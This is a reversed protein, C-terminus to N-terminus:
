VDSWFNKWREFPTYDLGQEIWNVSQVLTRDDNKLRNMGERTIGIGRHNTGVSATLYTDGMDGHVEQQVELPIYFISERERRWFINVLLIDCDPQYDRAIERGVQLPDVTWLVKVQGNGKITKISLPHDCLVIDYSRNIGDQTTEVNESSFEDIFFGTLIHERLLGIAPNGKPIEKTAREFAEPLGRVLRDMREEDNFLEALYPNM